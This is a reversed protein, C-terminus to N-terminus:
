KKGGFLVLVKSKRKSAKLPDVHKDEIAVKKIHSAMPCNGIRWKAAPVLFRRCTAPGPEPGVVVNDCGLCKDIIPENGMNLNSM